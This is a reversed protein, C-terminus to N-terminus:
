KHSSGLKGNGRLTTPLNDWEEDSIEESVVPPQFTPILQAIAKSRPYFAGYHDITWEDVNKTIYLPYPLENHLCIFLEGRYGTDVVGCHIHIGKSGTSGRDEAKLWLGEPLAVQVGTRLLKTENPKLSVEELAYIDYGADEVRKTPIIANQDVKHWKILYQYNM